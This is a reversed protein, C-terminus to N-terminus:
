FRLIRAGGRQRTLVITRGAHEVFPWRAFRRTRGTRLDRVHTGRDDTWTLIGRGPSAPGCSGSCHIVDQRTRGCHAVLITRPRRKIVWPPTYGVEDGLKRGVPACLPVVVRPDDLDVADHHSPGSPMEGTRWNLAFEFYGKFGQGYGWVGHRGVGTLAVTQTSTYEAPWQVGAPRHLSGDAISLVVADRDTYPDVDAACGLLAQAGGVDVLECGPPRDLTTTEETVADRFRLRGDATQWGLWREGDGALHGGYGHIARGPPSPSAGSASPLGLVVLAVLAGVLRRLTAM